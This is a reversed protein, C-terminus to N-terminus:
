NEEIDKLQDPGFDPDMYMHRKVPKRDDPDYGAGHPPNNIRGDDPAHIWESKHRIPGRYEEIVHSPYPPQRPNRHTNVLNETGHKLQYRKRDSYDPGFEGPGKGSQVADRKAKEDWNSM